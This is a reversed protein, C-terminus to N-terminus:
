RPIPLSNEAATDRNGTLALPVGPLPQKIGNGWVKQHEGAIAAQYVGPRGGSGVLRQFDAAPNGAQVENMNAM